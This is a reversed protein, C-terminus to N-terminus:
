DSNPVDSPNLGMASLSKARTEGHLEASSFFLGFQQNALQENLRLQHAWPIGRM